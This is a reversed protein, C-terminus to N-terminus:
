QATNMVSVDPVCQTLAHAAAQSRDAVRDVDGTVDRRCDTGRLLRPDDM